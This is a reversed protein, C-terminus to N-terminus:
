AKWAKGVQKIGMEVLSKGNAIYNQRAKEYKLWGKDDMGVVTIGPHLGDSRLYLYVFLGTTVICIAIIQITLGGITGLPSTVTHPM